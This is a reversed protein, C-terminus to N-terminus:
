ALEMVKADLMPIKILIEQEGDICVVPIDTYFSYSKELNEVEKLPNKQPVIRKKMECRIELYNETNASLRLHIPQFESVIAQQVISEVLRPLAGPILLHDMKLSPIDQHLHINHAHKPNILEVLNMTAELEDDLTTLEEKRHDLMYRYVRSLKGVFYDAKDRDHHILPILTELSNYLLYPNVENQFTQLQYEINKNLTQERELALENQRKLFYMGLYTMNYFVVSIGFVLNFATFEDTFSSFSYLGLIQTFYGYCIISIITTSIALLILTHSLIRGWSMDGSDFIRNILRTGMRMSEFWSYSLLICFLLEYLNFNENLAVIRDFILLILIYIMFGAVAPGILRFIPQNFLITKM